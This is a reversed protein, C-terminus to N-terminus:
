EDNVYASFFDDEEDIALPKLHGRELKRLRERELADQGTVRQRRVPQFNDGGFRKNKNFNAM